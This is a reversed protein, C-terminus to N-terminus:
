SSTTCQRAANGPDGDPPCNPCTNMNENFAEWRAVFADWRSVDSATLVKDGHVKRTYAISEYLNLVWRSAADYDTYSIKRIKPPSFLNLISLGAEDAQTGAPVRGSSANPHM